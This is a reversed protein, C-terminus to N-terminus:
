GEESGETDGGGCGKFRRGVFPDWWQVCNIRIYGNLPLCSQNIAFDHILFQLTSKRLALMAGIMGDSFRLGFISARLMWQKVYISYLRPISVVAKMQRPKITMIQIGSKTSCPYAHDLSLPKAKIWRNKVQVGGPSTGRESSSFWSMNDKDQRISESMSSSIASVFIFLSDVTLSGHGNLM